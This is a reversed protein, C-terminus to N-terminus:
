LHLISETILYSDPHGHAHEWVLRNVIVFEIRENDNVIGTKTTSIIISLINILIITLSYQRKYYIVYMYM